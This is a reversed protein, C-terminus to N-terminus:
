FANSSCGLPVPEEDEPPVDIKEFLIGEKKIKMGYKLSDLSSVRPHGYECIKRLEVIGNYNACFQSLLHSEFGLVTDFFLSFNIGPRLFGPVSVMCVHGNARVLRRLQSLFRVADGDSVEHRWLPSLFSFLVIRLERESRALELIGELTANNGSVVAGEFRRKRSLNFKFSSTKLLLNSYRWAIVMRSGDVAESQAGAEYVEVDAGERVVAAAREGNSVGESLFVKLVTSHVQSYEDELMLVSTGRPVGGIVADLGGIGTSLTEAGRRQGSRVFSSM